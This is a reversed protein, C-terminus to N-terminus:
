SLPADPQNEPRAADFEPLALCAEEIRLVTPYSSVDSEFRRAVDLQPILYIDALTPREGHCFVGTHPSDSLMAELTAFGKANWNGMWEIMTDRGLDLDNVIYERIRRNNVPHM